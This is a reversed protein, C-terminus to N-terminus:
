QPADIYPLILAVIIISSALAGEWPLTPHGPLVTTARHALSPATMALLTRGFITTFIERFSITAKLEQRSM